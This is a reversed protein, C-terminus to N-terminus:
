LDPYGIAEDMLREKESRTALYEKRGSAIASKPWPPSGYRSLLLLGMNFPMTSPVHIVGSADNDSLTLLGYRDFRDILYLIARLNDEKLAKHVMKRMTAENPSMAAANGDQVVTIPEDLISLADNRGKKRPRGGPNGSQGPQFQHRKPPRGYGVDDDSM